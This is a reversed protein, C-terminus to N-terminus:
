VEDQMEVSILESGLPNRSSSGLLDSLHIINKKFLKLDNMDMAHYHDNGPLDKNHTFHKEIIKAGLVTAVELTKMDKPMTHDSYGIVLHPFKDILTKIVALNANNDDTPYNLVCHLLSVPNRSLNIWSLTQEIEWLYSAGTSLILPKDFQCIFEIFPKNNMDSSSIKFVPMLDSLYSASEVDIPTSLFDIQIDRSYEALAVFENKWFKDYKQFLKFQSDTPEKTLDWYSPSNESAIMSAKYTQFKIADAGGEKAEDILRRAIDIDGEHNVGAEAIVYPFDFSPSFSSNCGSSILATLDKM